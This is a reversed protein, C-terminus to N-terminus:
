QNTEHCNFFTESQNLKLVAQYLKDSLPDCFGRGCFKPKSVITVQDGSTFPYIQVVEKGFMPGGFSQLKGYYFTSETESQLILSTDTGTRMFQNKQVTLKIGIPDSDCLYGAHVHYGILIMTSITIYVKKMKSRRLPTTTEQLLDLLKTKILLILLNLIHISLDLLILNM